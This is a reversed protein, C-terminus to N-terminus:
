PVTITRDGSLPKASPAVALGNLTMASRSPLLSSSSLGITLNGTDTPGTTTLNAVSIFRFIVVDGTQVGSGVQTWRNESGAYFRVVSTPSFWQAPLTMTMTVNRTLM